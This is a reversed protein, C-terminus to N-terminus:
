ITKCIFILSDQKYNMSNVVECAKKYHVISTEYNALATYNDGLREHLKMCMQADTKDSVYLVDQTRSINVAPFM